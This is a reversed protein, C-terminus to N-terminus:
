RPTPAPARNSGVIDCEWHAMGGDPQSLTRVTEPRVNWRRDTANLQVVADAPMEYNEIWYLRRLAALEARDAGASDRFNAESIRCPLSEKVTVTYRGSANRGYVRAVDTMAEALDWEQEVTAVM